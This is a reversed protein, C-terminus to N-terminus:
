CISVRREHEEQAPTHDQRNVEAQGKSQKALPMNTATVLWLNSLSPNATVAIFELMLLSHRLLQRGTSGPGLMLGTSRDGGQDM